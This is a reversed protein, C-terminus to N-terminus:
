EGLSNLFRLAQKAYNTDALDLIKEVSEVATEDDGLSHRILASNFLAEDEWYCGEYSLAVEDYYYLANQTDGARALNHALKLMTRLALACGPDDFEGSIDQLLTRLAPIGNEYDGNACENCALVLRAEFAPETGPYSGALNELVGLGDNPDSISLLANGMSLMASPCADTNPYDHMVAQWDGIAQQPECVLEWCRGMQYRAWPAYESESYHSVVTAFDWSAEYYDTRNMKEIGAQYLNEADDGAVPALWCLIGLGSILLMKILKM